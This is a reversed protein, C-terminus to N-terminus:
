EVGFLGTPKFVLVLIMVSFLVAPTWYLGVVSTSAAELIGILYASAITGRFSGLGGLIVVIFATLLPGDGMTPQIFRTAGLMIGVVAALGASIGFTIVYVATPNIGTLLAADQNQETARIALGVRTYKLFLALAILLLPAAIMTLLEQQSIRTGLMEISGEILPDIRKLRPGWYIHIANQIFISGALTTIIVVLAADARKAFPAVLVRELVMGVLALVGIAVVASVPASWGLEDAVTWAVYAGLAMLVGHAFNFMRLAGWVLSLGTSMLAYISALVLGSLLIAQLQDFSM